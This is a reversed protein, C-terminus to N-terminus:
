VNWCMNEKLFLKILLLKWIGDKFSPITRSEYFVKTESITQLCWRFDRCYGKLLTLGRVLKVWGSSLPDRVLVNGHKVQPLTYLLFPFRM